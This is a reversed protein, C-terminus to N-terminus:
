KQYYMSRIQDALKTYLSSNKFAIASMQSGYTSIHGGDLSFPINETTVDSPVGNDTHFLSSRDLYLVNDYKSALEELKFNVERTLVDKDKSFKNIDFYQGLMLSRKYRVAVNTDFTTPAAMLVVLKINNSAFSIANYLDQMQKKSYVSRWSGAFIVVDYDLIHERLYKRNLLCQEYARNSRPGTFDDAVSPYCWNTSVSNIKLNIDSGVRDWFPGYQGAYSDGFLLGKVPAAKNGLECSLGANGVKLEKISDVSYFCWGNNIQPFSFIKEIREHEVLRSPIGQLLFVISGVFAISIWVSGIKVDLRVDTAFIKKRVAIQEVFVYSLYGIGISSAIAVVVWATSSELQFYNLGIVLPWHWLYISYSSKGLFQVIFNGTILSDNKAALVVLVAGLVPLLAFVGPWYDEATVYMVSFIILSIGILEIITRASKNLQIPFLFILGGVLMEWARSPLLYFASNPSDYSALYSAIFSCIALAVLFWRVLSTPLWKRLLIIVLPFAVYFQWEVSLSWTHLLWKEHSAQEFYGDERWFLFNSIFGLSGAVYKGLVKYENPELLFWGIVLLSFCLCSLAPIIRRGRALYFEILSFVGRDVKTFIIKTMLFGSVVFFIDVGVFGGEAGLINFHFLVVAVVAFARLGNVDKRFDM